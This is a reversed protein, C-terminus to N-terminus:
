QVKATFTGASVDLKPNCTVDYNGQIYNHSFASIVVKGSIGTNSGWSFVNFKATSGVFYTNPEASPLTIKILYDDPNGTDGSIVISDSKTSIISETIIKANWPNGNMTASMSPTPPVSADPKKTCSVLFTIGLVSLFSFRIINKLMENNQHSRGYGFIAFIIQKLYV